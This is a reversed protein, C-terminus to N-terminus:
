LCQDLHPELSICRREPYCSYVVLDVLEESSRDVRVSFLAASILWGLRGMVLSCVLGISRWIAERREVGM